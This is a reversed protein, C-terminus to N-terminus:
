STELSHTREQGDHCHIKLKKDDIWEILYKDTDQISIVEIEQLPLTLPHRFDYIRIEYPCAWFCGITALKHGSPSLFFDTWIFGDEPPCYSNMKGNSLDIITQGGCLVEAGILYEAEEKILWDHFFSHYDTFFEFIIKKTKKNFVKVETVTWNVDPKSQQYEITELHYDGTLSKSSSQSGDVSQDSDFYTKIEARTKEINNM